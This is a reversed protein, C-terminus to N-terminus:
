QRQISIKKRKKQKNHIERPKVHVTHIIEHSKTVKYCGGLVQVPGVPLISLSKECPHTTIPCSPITRFWFLWFSPLNLNLNSILLFNKVMLTTLCQFLNGLSATSAGVRSINLALNAPARLLRTQHFIDRSMSPPTPVVHDKLHRGVRVM